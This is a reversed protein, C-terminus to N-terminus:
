SIAFEGSSKNRRMIRLRGAIAESNKESVEWRTKYAYLLISIRICFVM